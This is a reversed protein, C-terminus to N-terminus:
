RKLAKRLAPTIALAIAGGILATFLQTVGFSAVMISPLVVAFLGCIVWNVVAYLVAFKTVSASVLALIQRWLPRGSRTAIMGLLIVYVLNGAMIAPVTELKPAIDLFFAFIPSLLAIVAGSGTGVFLTAIALVANVCSGTVLQQNLPKTVSQLCLLLALLVATETLWLVKKRIKSM